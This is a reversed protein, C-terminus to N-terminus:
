RRHVYLVAGHGDLTVAVVDDAGYGARSLAAVMAANDEVAVRINAVGQQQDVLNRRVCVPAINVGDQVRRIASARVAPLHGLSDGCDARGAVYGPLSPDGKPKPEKLLPPGDGGPNFPDGVDSPTGPTKGTIIVRDYIQASVQPAIAATAVGILVAFLIPRM